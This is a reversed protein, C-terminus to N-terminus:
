RDRERLVRELEKALGSQGFEDLILKRFKPFKDQPLSLEALDLVKKVRFNVIKMIQESTVM